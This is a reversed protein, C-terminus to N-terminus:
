MVTIQYNAAANRLGGSCAGHFYIKHEGQALPKLFVWYGDAAAKHIGVPIKLKNEEKVKLSFTYPEGPVRYVPVAIGDVIAQKIVIDDIDKTVHRVLESDTKFEPEHTYIYNIIPFLIAKERPICCVRHAVKNEDGITGALFWVSCNQNVGAYQGTDDLVPNTSIPEALAWEWWKVTWQGYSLGYPEQDTTFYEINTRNEEKRIAVGDM